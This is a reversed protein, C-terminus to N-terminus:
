TSLRVELQEIRRHRRVIGPDITVLERLAALLSKRAAALTREQSHVGPVQPVYGVYWRGHREFVATIKVSAM